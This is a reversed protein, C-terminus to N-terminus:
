SSSKFEESESLTSYKFRPEVEKLDTIISDNKTIGILELLKSLRELHKGHAYGIISTTGHIIGLRFLDIDMQATAQLIGESNALEKALEKESLNKNQIEKIIRMAIGNYIPRLSDYEMYERRFKQQRNRM